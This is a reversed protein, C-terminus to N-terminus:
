RRLPSEGEGGRDGEMRRLRWDLGELLTRNVALLDALLGVTILFCGAGLLLAALILSQIHGTGQGNLYALLFRLGLLFGALFALVGPIAFFRFPKYTMFVRLMTLLQRSVYSGIGRVLRSPRSVSNVRVPVSVVTMGKRGAQILTEVTYTYSNYVHLRMAADRSFARFGSPSDAVDTGSLVRTMHSGLRQLLRKIPSFHTSDRIPRSGIVFDATGDLIPALLAPVDEGRYQHDGDTNVIIDAGAQICAEIGALFARSLGQRRPLRVVHDAGHLRALEATRDSSGDDIILWEVTSVGDLERPLDALVQPLSDQENHCPIQIILKM